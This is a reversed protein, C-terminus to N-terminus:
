FLFRIAIEGQQRPQSTLIRGFSPSTANTVWSSGIGGLNDTGFLNFVQGVLELKRSGGLGIGKTIRVDMRSQVNTDIQSEPIPGLARAARFANVATLMGATDRNGQGRTTGPVLDNTSSGDNNLDVGATATFPNTTRYSYIAGAVMDWPLQFGGSLVIQHRRDSGAPGMDQTRVYADTFPFDTDQKSLTYAVQYQYNHSLRKELRLLFAKYDFTGETNVENIQGWEPLPRVTSGPPPQNVNYTTPLHSTNQVITDINIAMDSTFQQSFGVTGTKVPANRIDNDMIGINPPATSVFNIPDRGGFPDPYTPNTINVNNEQGPTHTKDTLMSAYLAIEERDM